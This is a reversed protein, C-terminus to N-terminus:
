MEDEADGVEYMLRYLRKATETKFIQEVAKRRSHASMKDEYFNVLFDAEVLIQYDMGDISDYSHHHGILYCIREIVYNEFGLESLLHQAVTPGEKEQLNGDSHGYKELAMRIGIDHTYAAAELIFSTTEDLGEEVAILRAYAHVKTFHQIREADGADYEIMACFLADLLNRRHYLDGDM